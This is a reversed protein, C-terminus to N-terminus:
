PKVAVYTPRGGRIVRFLMADKKDGIDGAIRRYDQMDAIEQRNIEIIVDDPLIKGEAPSDYEVEVVLVGEEIDIDLQRARPTNVGEVHLGLWVDQQRENTTGALSIYDARNGLTFELKKDKGERIVDLKLESGPKREAVM